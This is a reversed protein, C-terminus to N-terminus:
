STKLDPQRNQLELEKLYNKYREKVAPFADIKSKYKEEFREIVERGIPICKYSDYTAGAGIILINRHQLLDSLHMEKGSIDQGARNRTLGDKLFLPMTDMHLTDETFIGTLPVKKKENEGFSVTCYNTALDMSLFEIEKELNELNGSLAKIM